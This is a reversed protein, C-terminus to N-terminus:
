KAQESKLTPEVLSRKYAAKTDEVSKALRQELERLPRVVADRAARKRKHRPHIRPAYTGDIAGIHQRVWVLAHMLGDRTGLMRLDGSM